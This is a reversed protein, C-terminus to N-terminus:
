KIFTVSHLILEVSALQPLVFQFRDCHRQDVTIVDYKALCRAPTNKIPRTLLRRVETITRRYRQKIGDERVQQFRQSVGARNLRLESLTAVPERECVLEGEASAGRESNRQGSIM